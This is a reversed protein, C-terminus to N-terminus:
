GGHIHKIIADIIYVLSILTIAIALLVETM